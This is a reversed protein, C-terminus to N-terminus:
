GMFFAIAKKKSEMMVSVARWGVTARCKQPSLKRETVIPLICFVHQSVLM